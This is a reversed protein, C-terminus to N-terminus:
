MHTTDSVGPPATIATRVQSTTSQLTSAAAAASAQAEAALTAQAQGQTILIAQLQALQAAVAALLQNTAQIAATQGSASNSAAVANQVASAAAAQNSAVQGQMRIASQLAATNNTRWVDLASALETNNFGAIASNVPYLTSFTQGASASNFGIGQAEILIQQAGANINSLTASTADSGLSQIMAQQASLQSQLQELQQVGQAVQQVAQAYTITQEQYTWPDFVEYQARASAAGLALSVGVVSALLRGDAKTM